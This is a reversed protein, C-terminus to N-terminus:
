KAAYYVASTFITFFHASLLSTLHSAVIRLLPTSKMVQHLAEANYYSLCSLARLVHGVVSLNASVLCFWLLKWVLKVVQSVNGFGLYNNVKLCICTDERFDDIICPPPLSGGCSAYDYSGFVPDRVAFLAVTAAVYPTINDATLLTALEFCDSSVLFTRTWISDRVFKM